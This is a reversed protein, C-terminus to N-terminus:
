ADHKGSESYVLFLNRMWSSIGHTKGCETWTPLIKQKENAAKTKPTAPQRQEGEAKLAAKIREVYSCLM